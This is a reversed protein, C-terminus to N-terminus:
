ALRHECGETPPEIVATKRLSLHANYIFSLLTSDDVVLFLILDLGHSLDDIQDRYIKWNCHNRPKNVEEVLYSGATFPKSFIKIGEDRSKLFQCGFMQHMCPRSRRRLKSFHESDGQQFLSARQSDVNVLAFQRRVKRGSDRM